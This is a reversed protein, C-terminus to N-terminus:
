SGTWNELALETVEFTRRVFACVAKAMMCLQAALEAGLAARQEGSLDSAAAEYKLREIV